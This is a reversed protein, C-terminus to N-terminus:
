FAHAISVPLTWARYQSMIEGFSEPKITYTDLEGLPVFAVEWLEFAHSSEQWPCDRYAEGNIIEYWMDINTDGKKVFENIAILWWVEPLVGLEEVLERSLADKTMEGGDVKGWPLCRHENHAIRCMLIEDKDIIVWRTRIITKM